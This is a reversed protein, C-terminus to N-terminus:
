GNAPSDPRGYAEDVWSLVAAPPEPFRESVLRVAVGHAVGHLEASRLAEGLAVSPGLTRAIYASLELSPEAPQYERLRARLRDEAQRVRRRRTEDSM